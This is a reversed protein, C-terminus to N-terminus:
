SVMRRPVSIMAKKARVVIRIDDGPIALRPLPYGKLEAQRLTFEEHTMEYCQVADLLEGYEEATEM